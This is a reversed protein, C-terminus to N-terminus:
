RTPLMGPLSQACTTDAPDAAGYSRRTLTAPGAAPLAVRFLQSYQSDCLARPAGAGLAAVIQTVTNSHGVVLIGGRGRHRAIARVTDAVAQIHAATGSAGIPVVHVVPSARAIFVSATLRTRQLHSVVVDRVGDGGILSDLAAARAMGSASLVPDNVPTPAKEAHRVVIAYAAGGDAAPTPTHACSTLLLLSVGAGLARRTRMTM